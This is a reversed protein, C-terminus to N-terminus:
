GDVSERVPVSIYGGPVTDRVLQAERQTYRTAKAQDTVWRDVRGREQLLFRMRTDDAVLYVLDAM